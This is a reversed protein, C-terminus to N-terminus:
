YQPIELTFTSGKGPSSNLRLTWRHADVISKVYHLGLGFGKVDHINQTPVRFFKDFIRKQLQPDIGPGRDSIQVFLGSEKNFTKVSLWKEQGGYKIANDVLNSVASTLHVRDADIDDRSADLLLEFEIGEAKVRESQNKHIERLIEHLNLKERKLVFEKKDVKSMQLVREVQKNLRLVEKKIIEVYHAMRTPNDRTESKSLVDASINITSIPTKFEHTMNDIFDKQFESLRRQKLIVFLAYAYFLVFLFMVGTFFLWIKMKSLLFTSKDPFRIGFYYIFESYKPLEKVEEPQSKWDESNIYNGYVMDDSSCDYIAYEFDLKLQRREFETKLFHELVNADIVDNINVIYYNSSIQNIPSENPYTSENYEFMQEAVRTLAVTIGQDFQKGQINFLQRVWYVQIVLIGIIAIAGLAVM